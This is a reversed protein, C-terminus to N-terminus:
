KSFELMSWSMFAVSSAMPFTYKVYDAGTMYWGGIVRDRLGSEELWPFQAKTSTMLPGSRQVDLMTVTRPLLEKFDYEAPLTFWLSAVAGCAILTGLIQLLTCIKELLPGKNFWYIFFLIAPIANYGAWLMPLLTYVEM